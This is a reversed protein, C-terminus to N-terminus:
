TDKIGNVPKGSDCKKIWKFECGIDLWLHFRVYIHLLPVYSSYCVDDTKVFMHWHLQVDWIRPSQLPHLSLIVLLKMLRLIMICMENTACCDLAFSNVFLVRELCASAFMLLRQYPPFRIRYLHFFYSCICAAQSISFISWVHYIHVAICWPRTCCQVFEIIYFIYLLTFTKIVANYRDSM